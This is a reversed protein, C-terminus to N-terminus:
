INLRCENYPPPPTEARSDERIADVQLGAIGFIPFPPSRDPLSPQRRYLPPTELDPSIVNNWLLNARIDGETRRNRRRRERQPRSCLLNCSCVSNLWLYTGVIGVALGIEVGIVFAQVASFDRDFKQYPTLPKTAKPEVTVTNNNDVTINWVKDIDVSEREVVMSIIKESKQQPKKKCQKEYKINRSHIWTEVAIFYPNCQWYENRLELRQLKQIPQLVDITITVFYNESM